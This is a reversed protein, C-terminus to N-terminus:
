TLSVYSSSSVCSSTSVSSLEVGPDVVRGMRRMRRFDEVDFGERVAVGDGGRDCHGVTSAGVRPAARAGLALAVAGGALYAACKGPWSPWQRERV